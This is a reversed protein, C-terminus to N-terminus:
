NVVGNSDENLEGKLYDDVAHWFAHLYGEDGKSRLKGAQMASDLIFESDAGSDQSRVWRLGDQKGQQSNGFPKWAQKLLASKFKM